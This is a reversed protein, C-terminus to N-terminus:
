VAQTDDESPSEDHQPRNGSYHGSGKAVPWPLYLRDAHQGFDGLACSKTTQQDYNNQPRAPAVASPWRKRTLVGISSDVAEGTVTTACQVAANFHLCPKLGARLAGKLKAQVIQDSECFLRRRESHGVLAFDAGADRALEPSIEGTIAGKPDAHCNQVGLKPDPPRREAALVALATAPPFVVTTLTEPPFAHDGVSRLLARAEALTLNM